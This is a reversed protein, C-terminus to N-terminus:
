RIIFKKKKVEIMCGNQQPFSFIENYGLKNYTLKVTYHFPLWHIFSTANSTGFPTELSPVWDPKLMSCLFISKICLDVVWLM